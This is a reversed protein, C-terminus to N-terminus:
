IGHEQRHTNLKPRDGAGAVRKRTVEWGQRSKEATWAIAQAAGRKATEWAQVAKTKGWESTHRAFARTEGWRQRSQEATWEVAGTAGNLTTQWGEHTKERLTHWLDAPEGPPTDARATLPPLLFFMLLTLTHLITRNM